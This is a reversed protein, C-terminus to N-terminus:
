VAASPTESSDGGWLARDLSFRGPGTAMLSLYVSLYLVAMEKKGWPDGSHAYFIAVLMTVMLPILALRTGLGLMLLFSCGLEAFIALWLSVAPGLGFPDAFASSMQEVNSFKAWGHVMMMLGFAVRLFLLGADTAPRFLIPNM